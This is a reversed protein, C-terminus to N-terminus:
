WSSVWASAACRSAALVMHPAGMERSLSPPHTKITSLEDENVEKSGLLYATDKEISYSALNELWSQVNLGNM